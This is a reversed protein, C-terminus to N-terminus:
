LKFERLGKNNEYIAQLMKISEDYSVPEKTEKSILTCLVKTTPNVIMPAKILHSTSSVNADFKIQFINLLDDFFSIRRVNEMLYKKFVDDKCDNSTYFNYYKTCIALITDLIAKNTTNPNFFKLIDANKAFECALYERSLIWCHFGRRGSFIFVFEEDKLGLHEKFVTTIIEIAVEAYKWCTRCISKDDCDCPRDKYDSIDVDFVCDKGTTACGRLKENSYFVGFHISNFSNGSRYKKKFADPTKISHYRTHAEENNNDLYTFAVEKRSSRIFINYILDYPYKMVGKEDSHYYERQSGKLVTSYFLIQNTQM